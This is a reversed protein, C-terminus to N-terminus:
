TDFSVSNLLFASPSSLSPLTQLFSNIMRSSFGVESESSPVKDSAEAAEAPAASGNTGNTNAESAEPVEISAAPIEPSATVEPTVEPAKDTTVPPTPATEADGNSVEGNVGNNGNANGSEAPEAPETTAVRRDSAEPLDELAEPKLDRLIYYTWVAMEVKHPTWETGGLIRFETLSVNLINEVMLLKLQRM